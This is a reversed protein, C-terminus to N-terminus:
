GYKYCHKLEFEILWIKRHYKRKFSNSDILWIYKYYLLAIPHPSETSQSLYPMAVCWAGREESIKTFQKNNDNGKEIENKLHFSKMWFQWHFKFYFFIKTTISFTAAARYINQTTPFVIPKAQVNYMNWIFLENIKRWFRKGNRKCIQWWNTILTM